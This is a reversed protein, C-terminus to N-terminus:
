SSFYLVFLANILYQTYLTYLNNTSQMAQYHLTIMLQIQCFHNSIQPHVTIFRRNEYYLRSSYVLWIVSTHRPNPIVISLIIVHHWFTCILESHFGCVSAPANVRACVCACAFLHTYTLTRAHTRAHTISHQINRLMHSIIIHFVCQHSRIYLCAPWVCGNLEYMYKQERQFTLMNVM